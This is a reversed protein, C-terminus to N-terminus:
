ESFGFLLRAGGVFGIHIMLHLRNLTVDQGLKILTTISRFELRSQLSTILLFLDLKVKEILSM